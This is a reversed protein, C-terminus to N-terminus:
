GPFMLLHLGILLVCTAAILNAPLRLKHAGHVYILMLPLLGAFQVWWYKLAGFQGSLVLGIHISSHPYLALFKPHIPTDLLFHSFVALWVPLMVSVGRRWFILAFLAGWLVTTALSHSWDDFFVNLQTPEIGARALGIWILDCIFAGTLLAWTPTKPARSKIALAAAFHPAYM